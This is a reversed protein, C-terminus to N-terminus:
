DADPTEVEAAIGPLRVTFVTGKALESEFALSGGHERVIRLTISLGLGTGRAKTSFFPRWVRERESPAIGVGSDAVRVVAQGGDSCVDIRLTGGDPMAQQANLVLNILAQRILNEDAPCNVAEKPPDYIVSVGSDALSPAVFALLRAVTERLDIERPELSRPGTLHLFDDFLGQLREAERRLTDVKAQARRRMTQLHLSEDSLLEGLLRLQLMMTSLPNRLEHALGGALQTLEAIRRQSDGASSPPVRDPSPEEM